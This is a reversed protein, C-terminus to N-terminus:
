QGGKRGLLWDGKQRYTLARLIEQARAHSVRGAALDDFVQQSRWRRWVGDLPDLVRELRAALRALWGKAPRGTRRATWLAQQRTEIRRILAAVTPDRELPALALLAQEVAILSGFPNVAIRDLAEKQRPGTLEGLRQLAQHLDRWYVWQYAFDLGTGKINQVGLIRVEAGPPAASVAVGITQDGTSGSDNLVVLSALAVARVLQRVQEPAATRAARWALDRALAEILHEALGEGGSCAAELAAAEPRLVQAAARAAEWNPAATAASAAAVWRQRAEASAGLRAALRDGMSAAASVRLHAFLLDVAAPGGGVDAAALREDLIEEFYRVLGTLNTGILVHRHAAADEVLIRAFVRSRAVRDARNNVVTVVFVEPHQHHDHVDFGLRRWNHRFSLTDNASMGNAFTVDRNQHRASPYVVLAGVDPVVREAMFGIAETRAIGLAEAAASALAVNGPHEAHPFRSMLDRPVLEARARRLPLPHAGRRLAQERLVAGMNQETTILLADSPAFGGIVEAVDMGSPGQIDEHDPYANTLTSLDDRMWHAQLLEVFSPQLAMCEWLMTRSRLRAALVLVEAQEWITAKDYPRYLFLEVARGGEPAHLFMAECGTTKSLFPVGLAEFLGAKLRETGSKGRTGWGGMVLPIQARARRIRMRAWSLRGLQATFLIGLVIGLHVLSNGRASVLYVLPGMTSPYWATSPGRPNRARHRTQFGLEAMRRVFSKRRDATTEELTTQRLRDLEAFRWTLSWYARLAALRGSPPQLTTVGEASVVTIPRRAAHLYDVVQPLSPVWGEARRGRVRQGPVGTASEEALMAPPVRVSGRDVTGTAHSHGPRKAPAPNRLEHLVRWTTISQPDGREIRVTEGARDAPGMPEIVFGYGDQAASVLLDALDLASVDPPLALTRVEGLRLQSLEAAIERGVRANLQHELLAAAALRSTGDAGKVVVEDLAALLNGPLAAGQQAARSATLMAYVSVQAVDRVADALLELGAAGGLVLSDAAWARVQPDPDERLVQQLAPLVAQDGRGLRQCMAGAVQFRVLESRDHSAAELALVVWEEDVAGCLEVARARVLFDDRGVQLSLAESLWHRRILSPLSTAVELALRRTWPDDAPDRWCRQLSRLEEAGLGVGQDLAAGITTVLAATAARRTPLRPDSAAIEGLLSVVLLRDYHGLLTATAQPGATTHTKTVLGGLARVAVEIRAGERDAAESERELLCALDLDRRLARLDGRLRDAEWVTARLHRALVDVPEVAAVAARHLTEARDMIRARSARAHRAADSLARAAAEPSQSNFGPWAALAEIEPGRLRATLGDLWGALVGAEGTPGPRSRIHPNM